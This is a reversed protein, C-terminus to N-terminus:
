QECVSAASVYTLKLTETLIEQTELASVEEM